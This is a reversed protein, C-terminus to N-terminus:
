GAVDTTVKTEEPKPEVMRTKEVIDFATQLTQEHEPIDPQYKAFKVLDALRLMEETDEWIAEAHRHKQLAEMTEDTTQELAMFGYRNEFYRRVIETVESYYQKILGKQWLKKEKLMALEEFAITHAPRGPPVYEQGRKKHTRKKWYRYLLYGAVALLLVIGLYLLIEALTLSIWIPPKIDKIGLSTDVQVTHVTLLLPNTAVIKSVSDGPISGLLPIPPLMASGSDYKAVVVTGETETESRSRMSDRAIVAFPGLTDGLLPRFTAGGPHTVDIHVSIWDGVLYNTSDVWARATVEQSRAPVLSFVLLLVILGYTRTGMYM